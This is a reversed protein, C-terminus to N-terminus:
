GGNENLERKSSRHYYHYHVARANPPIPQQPPLPYYSPYKKVFIWFLLYAIFGIGASFITVVIWILRILVPDSNYYEALGGCVGAIWKDRTSRYLKKSQQPYQQAPYSMHYHKQIPKSQEQRNSDRGAKLDKEVVNNTIEIV